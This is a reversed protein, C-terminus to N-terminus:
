GALKVAWAAASDVDAFVRHPGVSTIKVIAALVARQVPGPLVLAVGKVFDRRRGDEGELWAAAELIQEHGLMGGSRADVVAVFPVRRDFLRSCTQLFASFEEREPSGEFRFTVV